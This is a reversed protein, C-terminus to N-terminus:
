VAADYTSRSWVGDCRSDIGDQGGGKAWWACSYYYHRLCPVDDMWARDNKAYEGLPSADDGNASRGCCFLAMADLMLAANVLRTM